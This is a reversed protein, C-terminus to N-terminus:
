QIQDAATREWQIQQIDAPWTSKIYALVASIEEDTLIEEFAPMNSAGAMTGTLRTGGKLISEILVRDSHHWTHGEADHPPAKFSGDENPTKWDPQGELNSGHCAACYLTYVEKGQELVASDFTPLPPVSSVPTGLTEGISPVASLVGQNEPTPEPRSQCSVLLLLIFLCNVFLMNKASKNRLTM